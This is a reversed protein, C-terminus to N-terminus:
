PKGRRSDRWTAIIRDYRPSGPVVGFRTALSTRFAEEDDLSLFEEMLKMADIERRRAEGRPTRPKAENFISPKKM